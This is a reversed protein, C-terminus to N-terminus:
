ACVGEAHNDAHNADLHNAVVYWSEGSVRAEGILKEYSPKRALKQELLQPITLRETWINMTTNDTFQVGILTLSEKTPLWDVHVLRQQSSHYGSWRGFLIRITGHKRAEALMRPWLQGWSKHIEREVEKALNLRPTFKKM